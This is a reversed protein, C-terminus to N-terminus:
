SWAMSGTRSLAPWNRLLNVFGVVVIFSITAALMPWCMEGLVYLDYQEAADPADRTENSPPGRTENAPPGRTGNDSASLALSIALPASLSVRAAHAAAVAAVRAAQQRWLASHQPLRLSEDRGERKVDTLSSSAGLPVPQLVGGAAHSLGSPSRPLRM